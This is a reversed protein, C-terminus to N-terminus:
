QSKADEFHVHSLFVEHLARYRLGSIELSLPSQIDELQSQDDQFARNSPKLVELLRRDDVLRELDDKSLFSLLDDFSVIYATQHM